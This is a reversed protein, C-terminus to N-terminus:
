FPTDDETEELKGEKNRKLKVIPRDQTGTISLPIGILGFPPLGLRGSLNLKGDLSVQGEFRPRFGAIRMKTREITMINHNISTKIQVDKLDPNKLSDRDTAKSVANIMKFGMLSVQKLTLTGAGKVSPLVPYLDANLRGALQYDLGVIGKVSSASPAMERFLKIEKYAKAINFDNATLHFDFNASKTSTSKYNANLAVLADVLKFQTDKLSLAGNNLVMTGKADKLALGNYHVTKANAEFSVNLNSPIMIVGASSTSTTKEGDSAYVMFEDANITKSMLKFKGTLKAKDNLVYNIMNDLQGDLQFDSQGYSAKFEDFKMRDRYFSFIGKKIFFSQPFLDSLLNLENVQIIGENNLRNYRGAMVDSQLGKFHVNTFIVGNVQYGKVAFFQYMKGIDIAGKSSLDYQINDFNTINAKLLFPQSAMVFSIPKIMLKSNKLTGDTNILQADIHIQTLPESFSATKVRGDDIKITALTTPFLKKAKSYAGKSSVDFNLHGSLEVDKIPYVNKLDSFNILSKLQIDLAINENTQVKAFGKIYNSLAAIDIDTIALKTSKYNGDANSGDIKFNFRDIASSLQAFKIYGGTLSSKLSFKPVSALVTDVRRIGNPVTKHTFQGDAKLDFLFKGKLNLGELNIVKAWKELDIHTRTDTKVITNKLGNLKFVSAFYDNGMKFYLSDMDIFLSDPNLSPLKTRLNLSLKQISEPAKPNTISGDKIKLNFTITPMTNSAAIYKGILSASIEAYGKITTSSFQDSISPPLASFINKLDTEKASTKFNLDYGDKLFAFKGKFSIPLSNIMLNNEDFSFMLSNTNIKTVLKADLKKNLLYPVHNYYLDIHDISLQSKLDFVAQSLDGKGEYNLNKTKLSFPISQDNYTLNSNIIYIGEIKIATAATDTQQDTTPSAQYVNYNANGNKDVLVNIDAKNLYIEDIRITESFLSPINIGFSLNKAYLLSDHQFPASGKLLFENLNITLSPFHKFFSINSSKFKVVGNINKNILRTVGQDITKPLLFPIIFLVAVLSVITIATIKFFKKM